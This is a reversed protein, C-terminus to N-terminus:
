VQHFIAPDPSYFISRYVTAGDLYKSRLIRVVTRLSTSCVVNLTISLVIYMDVCYADLTRCIQLFSSKSKEDDLAM